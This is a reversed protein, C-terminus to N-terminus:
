LVTGKEGSTSTVILREETTVVIGTTVAIRTMTAAIRTITVAIETRRAFIGTTVAIGTTVCDRDNERRDRDVRAIMEDSLKSNVGDLQSLLIAVTKDHKADYTRHAGMGALKAEHGKSMASMEDRLKSDVGDSQLLLCPMTKDHKADHDKSLSISNLPDAEDEKAAIWAWLEAWKRARTRGSARVYLCLPRWCSGGYRCGNLRQGNLRTEYNPPSAVQRAMGFFQGETRNGQTEDDVYNDEQDMGVNVGPMKPRGVVSLLLARPAFRAKCMGSGNVAHAENGVYSHKQDM